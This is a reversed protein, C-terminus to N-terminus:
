KNKKKKIEMGLAGEQGNMFFDKNNFDNFIYVM